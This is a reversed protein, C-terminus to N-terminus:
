VTPHTHYTLQILEFLASSEANAWKPERKLPDYLDSRNKTEKTPLEAQKQQEDKDVDVFHEEESDSDNKTRKSKTITDFSYLQFRLDTKERILESVILLSAATYAAENLMAM